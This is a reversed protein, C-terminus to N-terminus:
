GHTSELVIPSEETQPVGYIANTWAEWAFLKLFGLVHEVHRTDFLRAGFAQATGGQRTIVLHLMGANLSYEGKSEADKPRTLSCEDEEPTKGVVLYYTKSPESKVSSAMSVTLYFPRDVPRFAKPIKVFEEFIGQFDIDKKEPTPAFRSINLNFIDRLPGIFQHLLELKKTAQDIQQLTVGKSLLLRQMVAYGDGMSALFSEMQSLRQQLHEIAAGTTAQMPPTFPTDTM